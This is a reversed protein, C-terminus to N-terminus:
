VKGSEPLDSLAIKRSRAIPPEIATIADLLNAAANAPIMPAHYPASLKLLM